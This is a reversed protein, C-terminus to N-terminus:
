GTAAASNAPAVGGTTPARTAPSPTGPASMSTLATAAIGEYSCGCRRRSRTSVGAGCEPERAADSTIADSITLSLVSDYWDAPGEPRHWGCRNQGWSIVKLEAADRRRKPRTHRIRDAPRLPSQPFRRLDRRLCKAKKPWLSRVTKRESCGHLTASQPRPRAPYETMHRSCVSWARAPLRYASESRSGTM